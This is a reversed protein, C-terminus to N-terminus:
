YAGPDVPTFLQACLKSAQAAKTFGASQEATAKPFEYKVQESAVEPTFGYNMMECLEAGLALAFQSDTPTNGVDLGTKSVMALFDSASDAHAPVAGILSTSMLAVACMGIRVKPM